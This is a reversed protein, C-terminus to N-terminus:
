EDPEPDPEPKPLLLKAAELEKLIEETSRDQAVLGYKQMTCIFDKETMRGQEMAVLLERLLGGTMEQPTLNLSCEFNIDNVSQADGGQWYVAFRLARTISEGLNRALFALVSHEGLRHIQASEATETERKDPTLMRSGLFAMQSEKVSLMKLLTGLGQGTFELFSATANPDDAAWVETPGLSKPINSGKVGSIFATPLATYFAGHELDAVTRYHSLNVQALDLLPPKDLKPEGGETGAFIFPIERLSVGGRKPYIDAGVQKWTKPDFDQQPPLEIGEVEIKIDSSKPNMSNPPRYVRVRYNGENDLDLVRVQRFHLTIFEDSVSQEEVEESLVVQVLKNSNHEDNLIRWNLIDELRYAKLYPRLGVSEEDQMSLSEPNVSPYDVIIGFGGVTLMERMGAEAFNVLSEGSLTINDSWTDYPEPMSITPTKSFTMGVLGDITRATANYFYARELYADYGKSKQKPLQPLYKDRKSRIQRTGAVCDRMITWDPKYHMYQRHIHSSFINPVNETM